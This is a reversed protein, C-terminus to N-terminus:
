NKKKITKERADELVQTLNFTFRAERRSPKRREVAGPYQIEPGSKKRQKFVGVFLRTRPGM